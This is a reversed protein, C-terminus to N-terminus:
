NGTDRLYAIIIDYAYPTFSMQPRSKVITIGSYISNDRSQRVASVTSRL